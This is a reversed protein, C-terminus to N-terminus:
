DFLSEVIEFSLPKCMYQVVSKYTLAKVRESPVISSSLVIVKSQVEFEDYSKMFDWGNRGPFNIDLFILLDGNADNDKLWSLADDVTIFVVIRVDPRVNKIIQENLINTLDDDDVLIITSLGKSDHLLDKGQLSEQVTHVKCMLQVPSGFSKDFVSIEVQYHCYKEELNRIHLDRVVLEKFDLVPLKDSLQMLAPLDNPSLKAQIAEFFNSSSLIKDWISNQNFANNHFIINYSKLEFVFILDELSGVVKDLFIQKEENTYDYLFFQTKMM